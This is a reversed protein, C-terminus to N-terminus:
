MVETIRCAAGFSSNGANVMGILFLNTGGDDYYVPGGSDGSQSSNTICLLNTLRVGEITAIVDNYLIEGTTNGTTNGFKKVKIGEIIFNENGLRINSYPTSDFRSKAKATAIWDNQNTFPIFAADITDSKQGFASIGILPDDTSGIGYYLKKNSGTEAVHENTLIGLEGTKNNIANVCMTGTSRISGTTHYISEGGYEELSTNLLKHDSDIIFNLAAEIYLGKRQLFLVIKNIMVNDTLYISLCKKEEDIGIIHINYITMNEALLKQIKKLYNYSFSRQTYIVQEQLLSKNPTIGVYGINLLGDDDVFVGAFNDNYVKEEDNIIDEEIKYPNM